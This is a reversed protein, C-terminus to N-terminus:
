WQSQPQYPLPVLSGIPSSDGLAYQLAQQPSANPRIFGDDPFGGYHTEPTAMTEATPYSLRPPLTPYYSSPPPQPIIEQTRYPERLQDTITPPLYRKSQEVVEEYSLHPNKKRFDALRTMEPVTASSPIHDWSILLAYPESSSKPHVCYGNVQLENIIHRICDDRNYLPLGTVYSPVTYHCYSHVGKEAVSEIKRYCKKLITQFVLRRRIAKEDRIRNLEFINM